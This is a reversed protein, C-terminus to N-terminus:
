ATRILLVWVPAESPSSPSPHLLPTSKPVPGAKIESVENDIEQYVHSESKNYAVNFKGRKLSMVGNNNYSKLYM